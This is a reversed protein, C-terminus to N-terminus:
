CDYCYYCFFYFIFVETSIIRPDNTFIISQSLDLEYEDKKGEVSNLWWINNDSETSILDTSLYSEKTPSQRLNGKYVLVDDM